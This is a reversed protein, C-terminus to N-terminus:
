RLQKLSDGTILYIASAQSGQSQYQKEDVCFDVGEKIKASIDEFSVPSPDGSVNASTSIIPHQLAEILEHCFGKQVIRIAISGNEAVVNEALNKAQPYILSTAQKVTKLFEYAIAPIEVVYNELMELSSVLVIMSKHSPRNKLTFVREVAKYNTADASLGWVTDTPCLIHGGEKIIAAAKKVEDIRTSM